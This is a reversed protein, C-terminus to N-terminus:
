QDGLAVINWATIGTETQTGAHNWPRCVVTGAALSTTELTFGTTAECGSVVTYATGSSFDTAIVVTWDAAGTDTISAINYSATIVAGVTAYLWAKAVGPHYQMVSPAVYTTSSTAAEMQAQTSINPTGFALTGSGNTYMVQSASGDAVPYALGSLKVAGSGKPVLNIGVNADDGAATILVPNGTISNTLTLYNVASATKTFLLQENDSDDYIGTGTDFQIDYTNADLDGGLQPSTDTLLDAGITVWALQAAGNTKLAQGNTGDAQPWKLGDLIVDGTGHPTITINGNATSVISYGNVDLNQDLVTFSSLPIYDDITYLTTGGSNKIILRYAVDTDFYRVASGGADLTFSTASGAGAASTYSNKPTSTGTIYTEVTGSPVVAGASDFVTFRPYIGIRAM